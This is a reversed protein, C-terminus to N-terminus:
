LHLFAFPMHMLFDACHKHVFLNHAFDQRTKEVVLQESPTGAEPDCHWSQRNVHENLAKLIMLVTGVTAKTLVVQNWPNVRLNLGVNGGAFPAKFDMGGM